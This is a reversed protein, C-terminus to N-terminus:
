GGVIQEISWTGALIADRETDDACQELLEALAGDIAQRSADETPYQGMFLSGQHTDGIWYLGYMSM